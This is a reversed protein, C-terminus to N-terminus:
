RPTSPPPGSRAPASPAPGAGSLRHRTIVGALYWGLAVGGLNALVDLWDGGRGPLALHQILESAFAHAILAPALWALSLGLLRGTLIVGAFILMHAVKDAGPVEVEAVAPVRPLYLVLLHVGVSVAFAIRLLVAHARSASSM